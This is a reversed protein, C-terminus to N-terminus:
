RGAARGRMAQGALAQKLRRRAACLNQRVATPTRGLLEAVEAPTFEDVICAMVERQAPPLSRLLEMVWERDEWVSLSPDDGSEGRRDRKLEDPDTVDGIARRHRVAEKVLAHNTALRAYALPSDIENWRRWVETMGTAVADEAEDWTAGAYLAAALLTRYAEKFFKEFETASELRPMATPAPLAQALANEIEAM